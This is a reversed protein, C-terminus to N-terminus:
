EEPYFIKTKLDNDEINLISCLMFVEPVRFPTRGKKKDRWAQGTMDLQEYIYDERYGSKDIVEQLLESHVLQPRKM